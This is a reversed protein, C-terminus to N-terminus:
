HSKYSVAIKTTRRFNQFRKSEEEEEEQQLVQSVRKKFMEVQDKYFKLDDKAKTYLNRKISCKLEIDEMDVELQEEWKAISVRYTDVQFNNVYERFEFALADEKIQTYLQELEDQRDKEKSQLWM